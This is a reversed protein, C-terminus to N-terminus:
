GFLKRGQMERPVPVGFESLITPALDQLAPRDATLPRNCLLVGPLFSSDMCHDGSWPSMNDLMIERPYKGLITDWSARHNEGYGVILDPALGSCPGSYIDEPRHIKAIVPEGTVPDRLASLRAVLEDKLREAEDGPAVIGDPERGKLNLYLSNIGLGYAKTQTWDTDAFYGEQGRDLRNRLKAYGEDVLWSNLNFQRRFSGFGHDSVIFLLSEEDIHRLALGVAEDIQSYLWPLFDGHRRELEPTYLPHRKDLCRWFAHSNLDLTSFYIYLFGDTFRNLEYRAFRMQEEFVETSQRRFEDDNFVGSTLASTDEPLGQTYFFGQSSVLDRAYGPPTAIPMAPKEPHINVPSVYLELNPSVQKLYFRCIASVSAVPPMLPFTVEAWPSWEKEHLLFEASQIRIRAMTRDPNLEVTFPIAVEEHRATLTNAPGRLNARAVGDIVALREIHGGPVDRPIRDPDESYLSFIGYSGHIDPTTLGSVTRAGCPTPPFNVPARFVTSAVGADALEKWLTPGQRLLEVNAGSLPLAYKGLPVTLGPPSTRATSLYPTRTAADRAIFDFIGHLGPNGGSIFNSWAVPSQPPDSTRLATFVGRDALKKCNPTLGQHIFATLLKPDMGDVGLVITRRIRRGSKALYPFGFLGSALGAM